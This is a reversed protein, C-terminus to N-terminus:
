RMPSQVSITTGCGVSSRIHLQAGVISDLPMGGADELLLVPRGMAAYSLSRDRRAILISNKGSRTNTSLSISADFLHINPSPNWLSYLLVTARGEGGRYLVLEGDERLREFVYTSLDIVVSSHQEKGIFCYM